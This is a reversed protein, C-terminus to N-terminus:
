PIVIPLTFSLIVYLWLFILNIQKKKKSEAKLESVISLYKNRFIFIFFNIVILSVFLIVIEKKPTQELIFINIDFFQLFVHLITLINAYMMFTVGLLANWQPVDEKGWKKLNWIYLRYFLYKYLKM